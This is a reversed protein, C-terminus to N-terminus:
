RNPGAAKALTAVLAEEVDARRALDTWAAAHTMLVDSTKQDRALDAKAAAAAAKARYEAATMM